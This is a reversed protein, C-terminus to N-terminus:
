AVISQKRKRILDILSLLSSRLLRRSRFLGISKGLGAFALSFGLGVLVEVSVRSPLHYGGLILVSPYIVISLFFAAASFTCGCDVNLRNIKEQWYYNEQPTFGDLNFLLLRPPKRHVWESLPIENTVVTARM